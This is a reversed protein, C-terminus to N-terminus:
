LNNIQNIFEYPKIEENNSWQFLIGIIKKDPIIVLYQGKYGWCFIVKKYSWWQFGFGFVDENPKHNKIMKKLYEPSILQSNNYIGDNLILQGISLLSKSSMYLGGEVDAVGNIKNWYASIDLPEFLYKKAYKDVSAGTLKEFIYGLLVTDGDNYNFKKGPENIMDQELIFKVWDKSQEMQYTTNHKDTYDAANWKIGSTMTLLHKIKIKRSLSYDDFYDNFYDYIPKNLVVIDIHNNQIAVGFLLSCISKTISQITHKNGKYPTYSKSLYNSTFEKVPKKNHKKLIVRNDKWVIIEDINNYKDTHNM